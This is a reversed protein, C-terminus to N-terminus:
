WLAVGLLLHVLRWLDVLAAALDFHSNLLAVKAGKLGMGSSELSGSDIRVLALSMERCGQGLVGVAFVQGPEASIEIEFSAFLPAQRGLEVGEDEIVRELSLHNSALGLSRWRHLAVQCRSEVLQDVWCAWLAFIGEGILLILPTM